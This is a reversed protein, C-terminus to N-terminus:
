IESWSINKTLDALKWLHNKCVLNPDSMELMRNVHPLTKPDNHGSEYKRGALTKSYILWSGSTIKAFWTWM